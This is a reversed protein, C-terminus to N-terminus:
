RCFPSCLSSKRKIPNWSAACLLLFGSGNGAIAGTKGDQKDADQKATGDIGGANAGSHWKISIGSRIKVESLYVASGAGDAVAGAFVASGADIGLALPQTHAAAGCLLQVAFPERRKIKSKRAEAFSQCCSRQM